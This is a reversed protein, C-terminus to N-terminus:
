PGCCVAHAAVRKAPAASNLRQQQKQQQQQQSAAWAAHPSSPAAAFSSSSSVLSSDKTAAQPLLGAAALLVERDDRLADAFCRVLLSRVAPCRSGPTAAPSLLDDTSSAKPAKPPPALSAAGLLALMLELALCRTALTNWPHALRHLLSPLAANVVRVSTRMQQQQQGGDNGGGGSGGGGSSSSSLRWNQQILLFCLSGWEAFSIGSSKGLRRVRSSLSAVVGQRKGSGLSRAV